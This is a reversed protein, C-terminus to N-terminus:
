HECLYFLRLMLVAFFFGIGLCDIAYTSCTQRSFVSKSFYISTAIASLLIRSLATIHIRNRALMHMLDLLISLCPFAISTIHQKGWGWELFARSVFNRDMLRSQHRRLDEERVCVSHPFRRHGDSSRLRRLRSRRVLLLPGYKRLRHHPTPHRLLLGLLRLGLLGFLLRAPLLALALQLEIM